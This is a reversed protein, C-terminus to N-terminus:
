TVYNERLRRDADFWAREETSSATETGKVDARWYAFDKRIQQWGDIISYPLAGGM